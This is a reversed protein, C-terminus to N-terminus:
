QWQIQRTVSNLLSEQLSRSTLRNGWQVVMKNRWYPIVFQYRVQSECQLAVNSEDIYSM